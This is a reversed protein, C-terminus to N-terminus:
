DEQKKIKVSTFADFFAGMMHLAKNETHETINKGKTSVDFKNQPPTNHASEVYQKLYQSLTQQSRLEKRMKLLLKENSQNIQMQQVAADGNIEDCFGYELCKEPTLITENSMMEILQEETLNCRTLFIKRNSEMLVDLDDAQKRLEQANGSAVTWMDHILISSGLGMVIKNCSMAIVYAVSYAFCDIYCVKNCQKQKLLNYIAVGEKVEGGYSNIHLEIDTGDPIESLLKAFHSASTDSEDYQWTEWNFDGQATIDDYVYIKTPKKEEQLFRYKMKVRHM